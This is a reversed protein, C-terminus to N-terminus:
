LRGQQPRPVEARKNHCHHQSSSPSILRLPVFAQHVATSLNLIPLCSPELDKLNPNCLSPTPPHRYPTPLSSQLAKLTPRLACSQTPIPAQRTTKTTSSSANTINSIREHALQGSSAASVRPLNLGRLVKSFTRAQLCAESSADHM